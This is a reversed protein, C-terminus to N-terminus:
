FKIYYIFIFLYVKKYHASRATRLKITRFIAFCLMVCRKAPNPFGVGRLWLLVCFCLFLTHSAFSALAACRLLRSRLRASKNQKQKQTTRLVPSAVSASKQKQTTRLVPSALSASKQKKHWSFM